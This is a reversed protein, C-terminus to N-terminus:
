EALALYAAFTGLWHDAAYGNGFIYDWGATAHATSAEAALTTFRHDAPLTATIARWAWARSLALGALHAGLLDDPHPVPVPSRLVEWRPAALDPLFADFWHGFEPGDLVRRMLDAEALAPSLFDVADPEYGGYATDGLYWRLAAAECAEALETDARARAADLVLGTAFATNTHTGVRVPLQADRIWTLWRDRLVSALPGLSWQTGALEADLTLLWAWGYPREWHRGEDGAFFKAEAV